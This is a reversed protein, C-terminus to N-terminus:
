EPSREKKRNKWMVFVPLLLFLLFWQGNEMITKGAAFFPNNMLMEKAADTNAQDALALGGMAFDNAVAMGGLAGYWAIAGGGCAMWGIAGGGLALGGVALGALSIVGLAM